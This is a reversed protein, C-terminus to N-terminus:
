RRPGPLEDRRRNWGLVATGVFFLLGVIALWFLGEVVAGIVTVVLWVVLLIGILRWVM